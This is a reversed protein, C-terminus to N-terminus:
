RDGQIPESERRGAQTIQVFKANVWFEPITLANSYSMASRLGGVLEQVADAVPGKLEFEMEVGEPIYPELEGRRGELSLRADAAASSAMGRYVKYLRGNRRVRQGPSEERGAFMGGIMVTSGGVGIAKAVDGPERIGGDACIPLDLKQAEDFCDNIATWQPVGTGAVTRTTCASGPGVGCKVGDVGAEALDRVAEPTVVNGAVVDVGPYRAKLKKTVTLAHEAHGHAIDLVLADVGAQVLGDTREEYDGRVGVAAAVLLRGRSDRTAKPWQEGADIDRLTILGILRHDDDVVPLKEVGADLMLRRADTATVGLRAVVLQDFPTMLHAM